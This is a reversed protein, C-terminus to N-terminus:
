DKLEEKVVKRLEKKPLKEKEKKVSKYLVLLLILYLVQV